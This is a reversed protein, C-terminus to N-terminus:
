LPSLLPVPPKGITLVLDAEQAAKLTSESRYLEENYIEDFWLIHPRMLNGAEDCLKSKVEEDLPENPDLEEVFHPMPLLNPRSADFIRMYNLNGHIEYVKESSNGAKLHLGDVNQTILRFRDDLLKELEVLAQHGDNPQARRHKYIRTLYWDWVEWPYEQFKEVTAMEM